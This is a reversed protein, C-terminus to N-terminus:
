WSSRLVVVPLAVHCLFSLLGFALPIWGERWPFGAMRERRLLANLVRRWCARSRGMLNPTGLWESLFYYGDLKMLPNANFFLYLVSGLTVIMATRAAPTDVASMFWVLFAAAGVLLQWYIGAGIVWLRRSRQPILHLATVNCYLGPFCFCILVAGIESARGGFAKLTLGHAIEHTVTVLWAAVLVGVFHQRLTREGYRAVAPWHICAIIIAALILALSVALFSATWIWKLAPLLRGLLADPNCLKHRLYISSFQKSATRADQDRALIGADDLKALLGALNPLEAAVGDHSALGRCVGAPTRSGDLLKLVRWERPGVKLYRGVGASGVVFLTLGGEVRAAVEVDGALTPPYLCQPPRSV